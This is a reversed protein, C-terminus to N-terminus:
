FYEHRDRSVHPTYPTSNLNAYGAQNESLEGLFGGANGVEGRGLKRMAAMQTVYRPPRKAKQPQFTCNADNEAERARRIEDEKAKKKERHERDLQDPDSSDMRLRGRAQNMGPPAPGIAPTFTCAAMEEEARMRALMERRHHSEEMENVMSDLDRGRAMQLSRKSISPKFSPTAEAELRRRARDKRVLALAQREEFTMTRTVSWEGGSSPRPKGHAPKSKVAGFSGKAGKQLRSGTKNQGALLPHFPHDELFQIESSVELKEKRNAEYRESRRIFDDFAAEGDTSVGLKQRRVAMALLERRKEDSEYQAQRDVTGLLDKAEKMVSGTLGKNTLREVVDVNGFKRQVMKESSPNVKPKFPFAEKEAAEAERLLEERRQADRRERLEKHKEARATARSNKTKDLNPQFTCEAMRELLVQKEMNLRKVQMQANERKGIQILREAVDSSLPESQSAEVEDPFAPRIPSPPPSAGKPSKHDKIGMSMAFPDQEGMVDRAV